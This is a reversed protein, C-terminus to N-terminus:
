ILKDSSSLDSQSGLLRETYRQLFQMNGDMVVGIMISKM